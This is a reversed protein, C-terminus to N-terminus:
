IALITAKKRSNAIKKAENECEYCRSYLGNKNRPERRFSSLPKEKECKRCVKTNSMLEKEQAPYLKSEIKKLRNKVVTESLNLQRQIAVKKVKKATSNIIFNTIRKELDNLEDAIKDFFKQESERRILIEHPADIEPNKERSKYYTFEAWRTKLISDMEEYEKKYKKKSDNNNYAFIKESYTKFNNEHGVLPIGELIYDAVEELLKFYKKTFRRYSSNRSKTESDINAYASLIDCFYEDVEDKAFMNKVFELREFITLEEIDDFIDFYLKTPLNNGNIYFYINTEHFAKQPKDALDKKYIVKRKKQPCESKVEKKNKSLM